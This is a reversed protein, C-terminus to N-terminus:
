KWFFKYDEAGRVFFIIFIIPVITRYILMNASHSLHAAVSIVEAPVVLAVTGMGVFVLGTFFGSIIMRWFNGTTM